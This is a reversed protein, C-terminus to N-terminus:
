YPVGDSRHFNNNVIKKGILMMIFSVLYIFSSLGFFAFIGPTMALYASVPLSWIFAILMGTSNPQIAAIIALCAPLLLMTFTIVAIRAGDDSSYPNFFVLVLWLFVSSLGTVVGLFRSIKKMM